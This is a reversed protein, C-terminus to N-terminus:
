AAQEEAPLASRGTIAPSKSRARVAPKRATLGRFLLLLTVVLGTSLYVVWMWPEHTDTGAMVGHIMSLAFTPGALMHLRRWWRTGVRKRAWSSLMILVMSYMAIIGLTVGAPRYDSRFPVFLELFGFPIFRDVFLGTLHVVLLFLGATALFQHVATSTARHPKRGFFASTAVLGWAVSAFLLLYAGIGAARLVIWTIM